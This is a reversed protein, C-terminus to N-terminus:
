RLVKMMPLLGDKDTPKEWRRLPMNNRLKKPEGGEAAVRLHATYRTVRAPRSWKHGFFFVPPPALPANTAATTGQGLVWGGGGGGVCM